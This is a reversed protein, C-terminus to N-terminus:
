DYLEGIHKRRNLEGRYRVLGFIALLITPLLINLWRIAKRAGNPLEKLPTFETERSRIQILASDGALYDTANLVFATNNPVGAGASDKIFDSDTLLIVTGSATEAIADPHAADKAFYSTFLGSYIGAVIKPDDILMRRLDKNMYTQVNIDLRPALVEGSNLSTYLLPEFTTNPGVRTTDIESAFVLQMQDLNKVIESNKNVSNIIPFFPYSVPTNMRFIGKQQQVTVQGCQADTVLNQKMVIGYHSLLDFLNSEIPKSTQTQLQTDIRDQFMLINKGMMLYQDLHYLQATTLSDTIGGFLLMDVDSSIPEDLTIDSVEYNSSILERITRYDDAQQQMYPNQMMQPDMAPEPHFFAVKKMGISSIKKITSTIDYEVGQTNQVVPITETKDMYHFVLGMYVERVEFKDNEVVRMTVPFIQNQQAEKKLEEEDSPDIFEYRLKGRSYAQYESLMDSIFRRTDALQNPLNKTFYAKVVVRDELQKVTEKSAKSLSYIHGRTLDLRTFLTMSILNVFIIIALVIAANIWLQKINKMGDEGIEM